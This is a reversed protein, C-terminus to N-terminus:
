FLLVWVVLTVGVLLLESLELLEKEDMGWPDGAAINDRRLVALYDQIFNLRNVRDFAHGIVGLLIRKWNAAGPHLTDARRLAQESQWRSGGFALTLRVMLFVTFGVGLSGILLFM